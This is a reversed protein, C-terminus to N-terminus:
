KHVITHWLSISSIESTDKLPKPNYDMGGDRNELDQSGDLKM